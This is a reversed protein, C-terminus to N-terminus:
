YLHVTTEFGKVGVTPTYNFTPSCGGQSQDLTFRVFVEKGTPVILKWQDGKHLPKVYTMQDCQSVGGPAMDQTYVYLVEDRQDEFTYHSAGLSMARPSATQKQTPIEVTSPTLFFVEVNDSSSVAQGGWEFECSGKVLHGLQNGHQDVTPGGFIGNLLKDEWAQNTQYNAQCVYIPQGDEDVGSSLMDERKGRDMWSWHALGRGPVAKAMDFDEAILVSGEYSVNCKQNVTKGPILLNKGHAIVPAACVFEQDHVNNFEEIYDTGSTIHGNESVPIWDVTTRQTVPPPTAAIVDGSRFHLLGNADPTPWVSIGANIKRGRQPGELGDFFITLRVNSGIALDESKLELKVNIDTEQAAISDETVAIGVVGCHCSSIVRGEIPLDKRTFITLLQTARGYDAYRLVLIQEDFSLGNGDMGSPWAADAREERNHPDFQANLPFALAISFILAACTQVLINTKM